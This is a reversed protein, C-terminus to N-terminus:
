GISIDETPDSVVNQNERKSGLAIALSIPGIRGFYMNVIVIAKGLTSLTATLNRSLGVTATASVTEYIVDLAPADSAVSLLVTSSLLIVTFTMVVAIAKRISDESIQRNFITASSKNRITSFASCILVVVTVTKVGGATGVPSGGIFMLILSSIASANTLNEQPISAFGATRTTVSQFLSVQIKDFLSLEGITLPNNYEFVFILFAGFAILAASAVIAIKSHLTLHRLVRKNKATRNKLVRVIDWWVVYGIGGTIILLSTTINILPNTAYNCLSSEGIVDIGANCFASVSNFVSIWIGRAGFEPVFVTMYLLAGAGEIVLTGLLIKKIFSALGSMTNLNFADQILLRDGIGMKKNIMLMFGSMVTIVGLGGIQILLLIVAQGFFSWTTATPLTVLGTVCTATTSTFLADIFPVAKGTASSIPLSLLISGLLITILFSLLIIQTTSLSIKKKMLM